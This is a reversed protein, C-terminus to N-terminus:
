KSFERNFSYTQNNQDSSQSYLAINSTPFDPM